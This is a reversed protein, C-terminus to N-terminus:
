NSSCFMANVISVKDSVTCSVPEPNENKHIGKSMIKIRDNCCFPCFRVRSPNHLSNTRIGAGSSFLPPFLKMSGPRLFPCGHRHVLYRNDIGPKRSIYYSVALTLAPEGFM